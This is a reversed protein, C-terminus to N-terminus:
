DSFLKWLAYVGAGIALPAASTIAIGVGMGGGVLGGITALTGTITAASAGSAAVAIGGTVTSGAIGGAIKANTENDSMLTM